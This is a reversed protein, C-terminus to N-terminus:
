ISIFTTILTYNSYFKRQCKFGVMPAKMIITIECFGLFDSSLDVSAVIDVDFTLYKSCQAQFCHFCM